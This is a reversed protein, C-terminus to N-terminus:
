HRRCAGSPPKMGAVDQRVREVLAEYALVIVDTYVTRAALLRNIAPVNLDQIYEIRHGELGAQTVLEELDAFPTQTSVASNLLDLLTYPATPSLVRSARECISELYRFEETERAKAYDSETKNCGTLLNGVRHNEPLYCLSLSTHHLEM